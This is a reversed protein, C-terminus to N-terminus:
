PLQRTIGACVKGDANRNGPISDEDARTQYLCEDDRPYVAASATCRSKLRSQQPLYLERGASREGRRRCARARGCGKPWARHDENGLRVNHPLGQAVRDMRDRHTWCACRSRSVRVAASLYCVYLALIDHAITCSRRISLRRPPARPALGD